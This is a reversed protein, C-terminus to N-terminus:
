DKHLIKVRHVPIGLVGSVADTIGAKLKPDRIGRASIMVGRVTPLVDEKVFPKEGSSDKVMVPTEKSSENGKGGDQSTSKEYVSSTKKVGANEYTIFVSVDSVGEISGIIEGLKEEANTDTTIVAPKPTQEENKSPNIGKSLVMLAIGLFLALVLYSSKIHKLKKLEMTWRQSFQKADM